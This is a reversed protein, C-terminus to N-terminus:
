RAPLGLGFPLFILCLTKVQGLLGIEHRYNIQNPIKNIQSKANM